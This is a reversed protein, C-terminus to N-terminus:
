SRDIRHCCGGADARRGRSFCRMGSMEGVEMLLLLVPPLPIAGARAGGFRLFFFSVPDGHRTRNQKSKTSLSRRGGRGMGMGRGKTTRPPPPPRLQRAMELQRCELLLVSGYMVAHPVVFTDLGCPM